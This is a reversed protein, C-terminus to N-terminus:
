GLPNPFGRVVFMSFYPLGAFLEARTRVFETQSWLLIPLRYLLILLAALLICVGVDLRGMGIAPTAFYIHIGLLKLDRLPGDFNQDTIGYAALLRQVDPAIFTEKPSGSLTAIHEFFSMTDQAGFVAGVEIQKFLAAGLVGVVFALAGNGVWQRALQLDRHDALNAAIVGPILALAIPVQGTLFEMYAIFLGYLCDVLPRGM